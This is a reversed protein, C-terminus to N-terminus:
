GRGQKRTPRSEARVGILPRYETSMTLKGLVWIIGTRAGRPPPGAVSGSRVNLRNPRKALKEHGSDIRTFVERDSAKVPM